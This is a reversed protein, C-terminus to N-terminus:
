RRNAYRPDGDPNFRNCFQNQSVNLLTVREVTISAEPHILEKNQQEGMLQVEKALILTSNDLRLITEIPLTLRIPRSAGENGALAPELLLVCVILLLPLVTTYKKLVIM